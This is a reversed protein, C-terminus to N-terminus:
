KIIKSKDLKANKHKILAHKRIADRHEILGNKIVSIRLSLGFGSDKQSFCELAIEIFPLLFQLYILRM